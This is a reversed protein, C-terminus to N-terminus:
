IQAPHLCSPFSPDRVPSPSLAVGSVIPQRKALGSAKDYVPLATLSISADASKVNRIIKDMALLPRARVESSLM